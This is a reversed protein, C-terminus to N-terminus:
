KGLKELLYEIEKRLENIKIEKNMTLNGCIELENM